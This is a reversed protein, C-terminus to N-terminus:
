ESEDSDSADVIEVVCTCANHGTEGCRGCHRQTRVKKAPERGEQQRSGEREAILDAVEGVTLSEEAQIYKRKRGRVETAIEVAKRLGAMEQRVLVAEHGILAVGKNLQEVARLLPSVPSGRHLQIRERVLTSQAELELLNSPTKSEWLTDEPKPPTPTCLVVDLKSLV